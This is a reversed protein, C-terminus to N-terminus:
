RRTLPINRWTPVSGRFDLAEGDLTFFLGPRAELMPSGDLAIGSGTHAVKVFADRPLGFALALHAWWVPQGDISLAYTGLYRSWEQRWITQEHHAEFYAGNDRAGRIDIRCVPVAPLAFRKVALGRREMAAILEHALAVQANHHDASNTLVVVGVGLTPYWEMRTLFGFGGGGHNLYLDGSATRGYAVGLGFDGGNATTRFEVFTSPELPGGSRGEQLM